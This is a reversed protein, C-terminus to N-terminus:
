LGTGREHPRRRKRKRGRRKLTRAADSVTGINIEDLAVAAQEADFVMAKAEHVGRLWVELTRNIRAAEAHVQDIYAHADALEARLQTTQASERMLASLAIHRMVVRACERHAYELASPGRPKDRKSM